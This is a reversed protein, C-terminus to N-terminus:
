VSIGTPLAAPNKLHKFSYVASLSLFEFLTIDKFPSSYKEILGQRDEHAQQFKHCTKILGELINPYQSSLQNVEHWKAHEKKLVIESRRIATIITTPSKALVISIFKPNTVTEHAFYRALALIFDDSEYQHSPFDDIFTSHWFYEERNVISLSKKTPKRYLYVELVQQYAFEENQSAKFQSFLKEFYNPKRDLMLSDM